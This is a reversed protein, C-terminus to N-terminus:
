AAASASVDPPPVNRRRATPKPKAASAPPRADPETPPHPIRARITRTMAENLWPVQSRATNVTAPGFAALLEAVSPREKPNKALCRAITPRLMQPIKDLKPEEHVIRYTLAATPGTGFPGAGSAAFVLVAGLCFIDGAPGVPDGTLQEPSMFGPTG